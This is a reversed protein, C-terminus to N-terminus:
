SMCTPILFSVIRLRKPLHSHMSGPSLLEVWMVRIKGIWSLMFRM